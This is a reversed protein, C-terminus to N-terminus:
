FKCHHLQRSQLRPIQLHQMESGTGTQTVTGTGTGTETVTVTGTLIETKAM